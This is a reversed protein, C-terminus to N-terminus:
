SGSATRQGLLPAVGTDALDNWVYQEHILGDRIIFLDIYRVGTFETGWLTTGDLTGSSICMPAGDNARTGVFFETRHKRVRQYRSAADAVMSPLDHFVTGGPFTLTVPEVLYKAAEALNREECLRLYDDVIDIEATRIM